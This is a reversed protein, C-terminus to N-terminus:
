LNVKAAEETGFFLLGFIDMYLDLDIDIYIYISKKEYIYM